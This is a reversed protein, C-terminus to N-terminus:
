ESVIRRRPRLVWATGAILLVVLGASGSLAAWPIGNGARTIFAAPAASTAPMPVPVSAADDKGGSNVSTSNPLAVYPFTTGFAHDNTDVGDGKALADVLKGTQAAGELAQLEIDVVDDTLRRGNPFGQLDNALVGLRNPSATVPVSLNLRLMESPRFRAADVDM